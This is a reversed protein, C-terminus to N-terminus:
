DALAVWGPHQFHRGYGNVAAVAQRAGQVAQHASRAQQMASASAQLAAIVRHLMADAKTDLKCNAVIEAVQQEIQRGLQAATAAPLTHQRIAGLQPQLLEHLRTMGQRLAADTQWRQGQNLSLALGETAHGQGAAPAHHAHEAAPALPSALALLLSFLVTRM